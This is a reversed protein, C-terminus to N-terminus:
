IGPSLSSGTLPTIQGAAFIPVCAKGVFMYCSQVGPTYEGLTAIGPMPLTYWSFAQTGYVYNLNFNSTATPTPLGVFVQIVAPTCTCIPTAYMVYGGFPLGTLAAHATKPVVADELAALVPAFLAAFPSLRLVSTKQRYMQQQEEFFMKEYDSKETIARAEKEVLALTDAGVGHATQAALITQLYAERNAKLNFADLMVIPAGATGSAAPPTQPIGSSAAPLSSQLASLANRTLPGVFGTPAVLGAPALVESRRQLQFRKVADLTKAGFYQTEMGPSGPGDTAIRTEPQTNLLTQLLAVEAHTSGLRLDATLVGSASVPAAVLFLGLLVMGALLTRKM